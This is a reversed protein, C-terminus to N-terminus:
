EQRHLKRYEVTHLSLCIGEPDELLTEVAVTTPTQSTVFRPEFLRLPERSRLYVTIKETEPSIQFCVSQGSTNRFRLDKYGFAITADSGLPSFREEEQYIDMSHAHREEIQLGAKLALLYIIGSLQCLGGGTVEELQENRITRGKKYGKSESPPGVLHWFSFVQGPKIEIGNICGAALRINHVKNESSVTKRVPQEEIIFCPFNHFSAPQGPGTLLRGQGSQYDRWHRLYIRFTRKLGAPLVSKLWHM